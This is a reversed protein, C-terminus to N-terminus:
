TPHSTSKRLFSRCIVFRVHGEIGPHTFYPTTNIRVDEDRCEFTQMDVTDTWSQPHTPSSSFLVSIYIVACWSCLYMIPYLMSVQYIVIRFVVWNWAPLMFNYEQFVHCSVDDIKIKTRHIWYHLWYLPSPLTNGQCFFCALILCSPSLNLILNVIPM